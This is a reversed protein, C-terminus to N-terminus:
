QAEFIRTGFVNGAVLMGASHAHAFFKVQSFCAGVGIAWTCFMNEIPFISFCTVHKALLHSYQQCQAHTLSNCLM